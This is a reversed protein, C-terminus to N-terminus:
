DGSTRLKATNAAAEALMDRCEIRERARRDEATERRDWERARDMVPREDSELEVITAPTVAINRPKAPRKPIVAVPQRYEIHTLGLSEGACRVASPNGSVSRLMALLILRPPNVAANKTCHRLATPAFVM